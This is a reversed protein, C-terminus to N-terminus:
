TRPKRVVDPYEPTAQPKLLGALDLPVSLVTRDGLNLDYTRTAPTYRTRSGRLLTLGSLPVYARGDLTRVTLTVPPLSQASGAYPALTASVNTRVLLQAQLAATLETLPLYV